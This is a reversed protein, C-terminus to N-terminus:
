FLSFSLDIARSSSSGPDRDLGHGQRSSRESKADIKDLLFLAIVRGHLKAALILVCCYSYSEARGKGHAGLIRYTRHSGNLMLIDGKKKEM